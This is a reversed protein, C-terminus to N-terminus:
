FFFFFLFVLVGWVLILLAADLLSRVVRACINLSCFLLVEEEERRKLNGSMSTSLVLPDLSPPRVRVASVTLSM